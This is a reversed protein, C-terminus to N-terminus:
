NWVTLIALGVSAAVALASQQRQRRAGSSPARLCKCRAADGEFTRLCRAEDVIEVPLAEYNVPKAARNDNLFKLAGTCTHESANCPANAFGPPTHGDACPADSCAWELSTQDQCVFQADACDPWVFAPVIASNPSCATSRDDPLTLGCDAFLAPAMRSAVSACVKLTQGAAIFFAPDLPASVHRPEDPDCGFCAAVSLFYKARNQFKACSDGADVLAHFYGSIEADHAPLCCSEHQYWNCFVLPQTNSKQLM